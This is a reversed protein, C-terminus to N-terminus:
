QKKLIEDNIKSKHLVIFFYLSNQITKCLRKFFLFLFFLFNLYLYFIRVFLSSFCIATLVSFYIQFKIFIFTLNVFTINFLSSFYNSSVFNSIRTAPIQLLTNNIFKFTYFLFCLNCWSHNHLQVSLFLATLLLIVM